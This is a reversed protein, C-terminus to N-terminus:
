HDFSFSYVVADTFEFALRVREKGLRSFTFDNKWVVPTDSIDQVLLESEALRRNRKGLVTVKVYGGREVDACVRLSKAGHTIPTTTVSAPKAPDLQAYGAFGDPRLRALCLFGDRWDFFPGNNGGYYIRIENQLFIPAAAFACGWDYDGPEDGNAILPTGPAIRHWEVTDPSWALEVHQRDAKTDFLGVLGLYVGGHPFVVMDHPQLHPELPELVPKSGSWQVFDPSETHAVIRTNRPGAEVKWLRTFGVYKGLHPAWFANNRTDGAARIEPCLIPELWHLGDASFSVAMQDARLFMKYRKGPAGDEKRVLLYAREAQDYGQITYGDGQVSLAPARLWSKALSARETAPKKTLGNMM